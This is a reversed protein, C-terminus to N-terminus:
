LYNLIKIWVNLKIRMPLSSNLKELNNFYFCFYYLFTDATQDGWKCIHYESKPISYHGVGGGGM